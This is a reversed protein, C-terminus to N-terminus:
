KIGKLLGYLQTRKELLDERIESIELTLKVAKQEAASDLKVSILQALESRKGALNTQMEEIQKELTSVLTSVGSNGSIKSQISESDVANIKTIGVQCSNPIIREVLKVEASDSDSTITIIPLRVASKGSCAEFVVNFRKLEENNPDPKVIAETVSILETSMGDLPKGTISKPIDINSAKMNPPVYLAMMFQRLKDQVTKLEKKLSAINDINESKPAQGDSTTIKQKAAVIKAKLESIKTELLEIKDSIGGKNLFEASISAPNSAKILVSSVYCSNAQLMSGLKVNKTESDSTVFITPARIPEAKSCAEFVYSYGSASSKGPAPNKALQKIVAVTTITGAPGEKALKKKAKIEDLQKSSLGKAWGQDSLKQASSPKVCAVHGTSEKTVKVLDEKCFIDEPLFDLKMQERPSIVDALAPSSFTGSFLIVGLFLAVIPYATKTKM